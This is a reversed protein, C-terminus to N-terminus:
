IYFLGLKNVMGGFLYVTGNTAQAVKRCIATAKEKGGRWTGEPGFINHYRVIKTDM